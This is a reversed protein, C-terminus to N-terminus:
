YGLVETIQVKRRWRLENISKATEWFFLMLCQLRMSIYVNEFSFANTYVPGLYKGRWFGFHFPFGNQKKETVRLHIYLVKSIM